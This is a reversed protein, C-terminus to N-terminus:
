AFVKGEAKEYHVYYPTELLTYSSNKVPKLYDVLLQQWDADEIKQENSLVKRM